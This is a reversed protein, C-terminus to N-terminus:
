LCAFYPPWIKFGRRIVFRRVDVNQKKQYEAFLLGSVLFGSLVFFLDVGAWGIRRWADALPQFVGLDSPVVVYHAGLVLLIAIGRLMDIQLSRNRHRYALADRLRSPRLSDLPLLARFGPQFVGTSLIVSCWRRM